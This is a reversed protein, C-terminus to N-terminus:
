IRYLPVITNQDNYPNNQLNLDYLDGSKNIKAYAVPNELSKNLKEIEQRLRKLEDKANNVWFRDAGASWAFDILTELPNSIKDM